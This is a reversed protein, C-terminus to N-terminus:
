DVEISGNSPEAEPLTEFRFVEFFEAMRAKHSELEDAHTLFFLRAIENKDLRMRLHYDGGFRMSASWNLRVGTVRRRASPHQSRVLALVPSGFQVSYPGDKTKVAELDIDAIEIPGHSRSWGEANLKM